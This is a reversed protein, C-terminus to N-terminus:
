KKNYFSHAALLYQEFGELDKAILKLYDDFYEKKVVDIVVQDSFPNIGSVIDTTKLLIHNVEKLSFSDDKAKESFFLKGDFVIVCFHISTNYDNPILIKETDRNDLLKKIYSRASLVSMISKYITSQSDSGKFAECYSRSQFPFDSYHMSSSYDKFHKMFGLNIGLNSIAEKLDEKDTRADLGTISNTSPTDKFFIWHNKTSKKCEITLYTGISGSSDDSSFKVGIADIEKVKGDYEVPYYASPHVSFKNSNLKEIIELELPFGSEKIYKLIKDHLTPEAM